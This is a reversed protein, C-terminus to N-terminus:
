AAPGSVPAFSKVHVRWQSGVRNYFAGSDRQRTVVVQAVELDGRVEWWTWPKVAEVAPCGPIASDISFSCPRGEGSALMQQAEIFIRDPGAPKGQQPNDKLLTARSIMVRLSFGCPAATSVASAASVKSETAM